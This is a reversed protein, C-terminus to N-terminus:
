VAIFVHRTFSFKPISTVYAFTQCRKPGLIYHGAMTVSCLLQSDEKFTDSHCSFQSEFTYKRKVETQYSNYRLNHKTYFMCNSCNGQNSRAINQEYSVSSLFEIEYGFHQHLIKCQECLSIFIKIIHYFQNNLCQYCVFKMKIPKLGPYTLQSLKTLGRGGGGVRCM